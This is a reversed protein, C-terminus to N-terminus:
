KWLQRGGFKVNTPTKKFFNTGDELNFPFILISDSTVFQVESDTQIKYRYDQPILSLSFGIFKSKDFFFNLVWRVNNPKCIRYQSIGEAYRFNHEQGYSYKISDTIVKIDKEVIKDLAFITDAYKIFFDTKNRGAIQGSGNDIWKITRITKEPRDPIYFCFDEYYLVYLGTPYELSNETSYSDVQTLCYYGCSALFMLFFSLILIKM